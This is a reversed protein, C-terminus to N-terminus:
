AAAEEVTTPPGFLSKGECIYRPIMAFGWKKDKPVGIRL